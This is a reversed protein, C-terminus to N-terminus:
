GYSPSGVFYSRGNSAYLPTSTGAMVRLIAVTTLFIRM